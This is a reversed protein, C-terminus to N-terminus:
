FTPKKPEERYSRMGELPQFSRGRDLIRGRGELASKLWSEGLAEIQSGQRPNPEESGARKRVSKLMGLFGGLPWKIRGPSLWPAGLREWSPGVAGSVGRSPGCTGGLVVGCLTEGREPLSAGRKPKM